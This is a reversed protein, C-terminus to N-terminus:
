SNIKSNEILWQYSDLIQKDPDLNLDRILTKLKKVEVDLDSTNDIESEFEVYEGIKKIKDLTIVINDFSWYERQKFVTGSKTFGLEDLMDMINDLNDIVINIEKRSKSESNIKPGKYTLITENETSRIRLTRDETIFDRTPHQFYIDDNIEKKIFQADLKELQKRVSNHDAKLKIEVEIM